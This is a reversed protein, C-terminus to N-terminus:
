AAGRAIAEFVDDPTVEALYVSIGRKSAGPLRASAALAAWGELDRKSQATRTTDLAVRVRRYEALGLLQGKVEWDRGYLTRDAVELPPWLSTRRTEITYRRKTRYSVYRTPAELEGWGPLQSDVVSRYRRGVLLRSPRVLERVCVEPPPGEGSDLYAQWEVDVGRLYLTRWDYAVAPLSGALSAVMPRKLAAVGDVLVGLPVDELPKEINLLWGDPGLVADLVRIRNVDDAQDRECWYWGWMRGGANRVYRACEHFRERNGPYDDPGVLVYYDSVIGREVLSAMRDPGINGLVEVYARVPM